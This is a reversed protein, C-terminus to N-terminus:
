DNMRKLTRFIRNAWCGAPGILARLENPFFDLSSRLAEEEM